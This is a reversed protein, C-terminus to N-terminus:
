KTVEMIKCIQEPTITKYSLKHITTKELIHIISFRQYSGTMYMQLLNPLCDSKIDCNRAPYYSMYQTFLIQFFFYDPASDRDKWFYQLLQFLDSIVENGKRSFIISNLVRVKFDKDWGFYYAYTRRWMKQDDQNDDRQYMFWEQSFCYDPIPGTLFVTADLWLGGYASLLALRVIDSFHAKGILGKNYKEVVYVPLDIYEYLNQDSLRIVQFCGKNKDISDFCMKVMEPLSEDSLGQGWYQWIVGGTPVDNKKTPIPFKEIKGNGYEVLCHNWFTATAKHSRLIAQLRLYEWISEPIYKKISKLSM